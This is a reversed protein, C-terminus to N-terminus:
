FYTPASPAYTIYRPTFPVGTGNNIYTSDGDERVDATGPFFCDEYRPPALYYQLIVIMFFLLLLFFNRLDTYDVSNSSQLKPQQATNPDSFYSPHAASSPGPYSPAPDFNSTICRVPVNGVLLLMPLKM